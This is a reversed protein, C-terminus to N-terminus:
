CVFDYIVRRTKFSSGSFTRGSLNLNLSSYFRVAMITTTTTSTTTTTTNATTTVPLQLPLLSM